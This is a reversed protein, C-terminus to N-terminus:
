EGNRAKTEYWAKLGWIGRKVKSIEGDAASMRKLSNTVVVSFNAGDSSGQGGVRLAEVIDQTTAPKKPRMGLYKKIAQAVTLQHFTDIALDLDQTVGIPPPQAAGLGTSAPIAVGGQVAKLTAIADDIKKRQAELDSLVAAYHDVSRESGM